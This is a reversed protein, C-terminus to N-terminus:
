STVSLSNVALLKLCDAFGGPIRGQSRGSTTVRVSRDSIREFGHEGLRNWLERDEGLPIPPWGGVKKYATASLGFNAAQVHPHTGHNGKGYSRDFIEQMDADFDTFTDIDVVGAIAHAGDTALTLQQRIWHPPVCSDADTNALWVPHRPRLNGFHELVRDAGLSRSAGANRQTTEIVEGQSDLISRAKSVTRDTCSDAVVVIWIEGVLQVQLLSQLCREILAEENHAPVVIGVVWPLKHNIPCPTTLMRACSGPWGRKLRLVNKTV